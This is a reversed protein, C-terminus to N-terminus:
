PHEMCVLRRGLGLVVSATSAVATISVVNPHEDPEPPDPAGSPAGEDALLSRAAPRVSACGSL